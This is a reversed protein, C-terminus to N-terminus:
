LLNKFFEIFEGISVKDIKVTKWVIKQFKENKEGYLLFNSIKNWPIIYIFYTSKYNGVNKQLFWIFKSSFEKKKFKMNNFLFLKEKLKIIM